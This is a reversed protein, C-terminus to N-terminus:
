WRDEVRRTTAIRHLTYTDGGWERIRKRGPTLRAQGPKRFSVHVRRLVMRKLTDTELWRFTM